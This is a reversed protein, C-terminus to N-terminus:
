AVGGGGGWVARELFDKMANCISNLIQVRLKNYFGLYCLQSHLIVKYAQVATIFLSREIAM